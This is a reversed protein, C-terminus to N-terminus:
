KAIKRKKKPNQAESSASDVGEDVHVDVEEFKRKKKKKKKNSSENLLSEDGNEVVEVKVGNVRSSFQNVLHKLDEKSDVPSDDIVGNNNNNELRSLEKNKNKKKKKITPPSQKCSSPIEAIRSLKPKEIESFFFLVIEM